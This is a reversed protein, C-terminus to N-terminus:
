RTELVQGEEVWTQARVGLEGGPVDSVIELTGIIPRGYEMIRFVLAGELTETDHAWGWSNEPMVVPQSLVPVFVREGDAPVWVFLNGALGNSLREPTLVEGERLRFFGLVGWRERNMLLMTGPLPSIGRVFENREKMDPWQKMQGTIVLDDVEDGNLNVREEPPIGSPIIVQPEVPDHGFDFPPEQPEPKLVIPDGEEGYGKPVRVVHKTRVAVRGYPFPLEFAFAAVSTGRENASRLVLTLGEHHDGTGYWGDQDKTIAPGFPRELLWFETPHDEDTWSLQKFHIRKALLSTDLRTSDELMYWRLNSPTNWMLVSTGSLTRVGLIYKGLYGPQEPDAIHMTRTTILLDAIGDGTVDVYEDPPPGPIIRDTQAQLQLALAGLGILLAQTRM